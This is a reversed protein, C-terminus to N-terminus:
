RGDGPLRQAQMKVNTKVLQETDRDPLPDDHNYYAVMGSNIINGSSDEDEGRYLGVAHHRSFPAVMYQSTEAAFGESTILLGDDTQGLNGAVHYEYKAPSEGGQILVDRLMREDDKSLEGGAQLHTQIARFRALAKEPTLGGGSLLKKEKLMDFHSIAYEVCREPYKHLYEATWYAASARAGEKTYYSQIKWIMVSHASCANQLPVDPDNVDMDRIAMMERLAKDLDAYLTYVNAIERQQEQTLPEGDDDEGGNRERVNQEKFAARMSEVRSRLAPNIHRALMADRLQEPSSKFQETEGRLERLREPTDAGGFAGRIRNVAGTLSGM